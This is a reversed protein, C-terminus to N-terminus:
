PKKLTKQWERALTYYDPFRIAYHGNRNVIEPIPTPNSRLYKLILLTRQIPSEEKCKPQSQESSLNLGYAARERAQKQEAWSIGYEKFEKELDNLQALLPESQDKPLELYRGKLISARTEFEDYALLRDHKSVIPRGCYTGEQIQQFLDNLTSLKETLTEASM